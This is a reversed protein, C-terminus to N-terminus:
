ARHKFVGLFARQILHDRCEWAGLCLQVQRNPVTEPGHSNRMLPFLPQFLSAPMPWFGQQPDNPYNAQVPLQAQTSLFLYKKATNLKDNCFFILAHEQKGTSWFWVSIDKPFAVKSAGPYFAMDPGWSSETCQAWVSFLTLRRQWRM